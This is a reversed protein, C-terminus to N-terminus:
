AAAPLTRRQPALAAAILPIAFSVLAAAPAVWLAFVGSAIVLWGTIAGAFMGIMMVMPRVRTPLISLVICALLPGVFVGTLKQVIDFLSGLHSVVGAVGTALLGITFSAIRGFRLQRVPDAFRPSRSVYDLTITSALANIGSTMTSMTAALIAAFILGPAGIPLQTAVFHPFVNDAKEPADAGPVLGYWALMSLGVACLLLVVIIVGVVNIAFARRASSIDASALYRQLSMQDALYNGLNLAFYGILVSWMTLPKYLDFSTDLLQLRGTSQLYTVAAHTSVPLHTWVHIIPWIIGIGVVLFQMADTVIVGRIGGLTTYFTGCFGISCVIPWFWHAPLHFAAMLAATPAYILTGMWAVRLLIFMGAAVARTPYGFRREIVEYPQRSRHSLYRPLFWYGVVWWSVPMLLLGLLIGTGQGYIVSPYILFSIGSFFSAAISLGVLISGLVKSFGGTFYDESDEQKGRSAIGIVVVLALYVAIVIGDVLHLM